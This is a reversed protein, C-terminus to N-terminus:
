SQFANIRKRGPLFVSMVTGISGILLLSLFAVRFDPFVDRLYGVWLPSVAGMGSAFGWMVGVATGVREGVALEAAYILCVPILLSLCFGNVMSFGLTITGTTNIFGFLGLSLIGLGLTILNRRGIKDAIVGGLPQSVIGPLFTLPLWWSGPISSNVNQSHFPLFTIFGSFVALTVGAVLTLLIIPGNIIGVLIGKSGRVKPEDLVRWALLSAIVGPIIMLMTTIRWSGTMSILTTIAIPALVFGIPNAIGHIGSATARNKQFYITIFYTSQPHYTSGGLGMLFLIVLLMSYNPVVGLAGATLAYLSLGVIIALRRWMMVDSFYGIFPQLFASVINAMFVLMGTQFYTLQFDRAFFPLLPPIIMYYFDNVLHCIGLVSLVTRRHRADPYAATTKGYVIM